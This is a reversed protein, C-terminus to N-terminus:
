IIVVTGDEPVILGKINKEKAVRRAEDTMHTTIIPKNYKNHLEEITEVGMHGSTIEVFIADLVSIDSDQIIKEVNECLTTDGSFGVAKGSHKIVYGYAPKKLGHEVVYSTAFYGPIVEENELSEFECYEIKGKEKWKKFSDPQSAVYNDSLEEVIKETGIPCYIKIKKDPNTIFRTMGLFPLDFFHDAHLHTILIAEIDDVKVGQQILTKLLGNGCDILVKDDILTCASRSGELIAGTGVLKLKM